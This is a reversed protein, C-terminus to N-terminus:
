RLGGVAGGGKGAIRRLRLDDRVGRHRDRRAHDTRGCSRADRPRAGYSRPLDGAVDRGREDHPIRAARDRVDCVERAAVHAPPLDVPLSAAHGEGRVRRLESARRQHRAGREDQHQSAPDTRLLGRRVLRGLECSEGHPLGVRRVPACGLGSAHDRRRRLPERHPRELQGAARRVSSVSVRRGRVRSLVALHAAHGAIVLERRRRALDDRRWRKGRDHSEFRAPRDVLLHDDGHPVRLREFTHGGDISRYTSLNLNYVVNPNQPDATILSYYWPRVMFEQDGNVRAWTAGSNESRYIGGLSDDPSTEVYAYLRNPMAGSVSIGIRGIPVEPMGPNDTLETWTDGGDTSKWLGSKGGGASFGWPYRQFRWMSAYLIRPNTPDMALDIAGTSDDVFLVRKWTAGGDSSHYVGREANPGFAHGYAAVYVNDPNKPDVRVTAIQERKSSGLTSGAEAATRRAICATASPSTKASTPRARASTSSTAIPHRWPSQASPRSRRIATPSTGGPQARMSRRGCAATSREWTSPAPTEVPDGTVAVARGGRFPGVLRWQMGRLVPDSSMRAASDPTGSRGGAERRVQRRKPSTRLPPPIHLPSPSRPPLFLRMLLVGFSRDTRQCPSSCPVAVSLRPAPAILRARADGRATTWLQNSRDMDPFFGDPDIEVRMVEPARPVRAVYTRAGHLWVSAPVRVREVNQRGRAHDRPQDAHARARSGRDHDRRLMWGKECERDGSRAAVGRLVVYELVLRSGAEVCGRDHQLLRESLSSPGIWSRGYERLARHFTAEGLMGRLASLIQATKDYYM